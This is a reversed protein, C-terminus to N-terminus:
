RHSQVVSNSANGSGFWDFLLATTCHYKCKHFLNVNEPKMWKDSISTNSLFYRSSWKLHLLMQCKLDNQELLQLKQGFIFSKQHPLLYHISDVIVRPLHGGGSLGHRHVKPLIKPLGPQFTFFPDFVIFYPSLFM